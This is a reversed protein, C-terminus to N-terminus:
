MPGAVIIQIEFGSAREILLLPVTDTEISTEISSLPLVDGRRANNGTLGVFLPDSGVRGTAICRTDNGRSYM